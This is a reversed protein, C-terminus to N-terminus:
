AATNLKKELAAKDTPSRRVPSISSQAPITGSAVEWVAAAALFTASTVNMEPGIKAASARKIM